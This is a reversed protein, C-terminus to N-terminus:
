LAIHLRSFFGNDLILQILAAPRAAEMYVHVFWDLIGKILTTKEAKVRFYRNMKVTNASM